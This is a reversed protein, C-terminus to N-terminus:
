TRVKLGCQAPARVSQSVTDAADVVLLPTITWDCPGRLICKKLPQQSHSHACRSSGLNSGGLVRWVGGKVPYPSELYRPRKLCSYGGEPPVGFIVSMSRLLLIFLRPWDAASKMWFPVSVSIRPGRHCACRRYRGIAVPLFPFSWPTVLVLALLRSVYVPTRGYLICPTCWCASRGALALGEARKGNKLCNHLSGEPIERSEQLVVLFM